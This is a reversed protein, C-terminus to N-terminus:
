AVKKYKATALPGLIAILGVSWIIAVLISNGHTPIDRSGDM